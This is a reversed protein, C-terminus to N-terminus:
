WKTERCEAALYCLRDVHWNRSPSGAREVMCFDTRLYGRFRQSFRFMGTVSYIWRSSDLALIFPDTFVVEFGVTFGEDTTISVAGVLCFLIVGSYSVLM